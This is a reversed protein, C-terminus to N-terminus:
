FLNRPVVVYGHLSGENKVKSELDRREGGKKGM